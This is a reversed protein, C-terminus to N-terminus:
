ELSNERLKKTFIHCFPYHLDIARDENIKGRKKQGSDIKLDVKKPSVIHTIVGYACWKEEWKVVTKDEFTFTLFLLKTKLLLM